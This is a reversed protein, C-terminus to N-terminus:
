LLFKRKNFICLLVKAYILKLALLEALSANECLRALVVLERSCFTEDRGVINFLFLSKFSIDPRTTVQKM